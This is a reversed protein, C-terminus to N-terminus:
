CLSNEPPELTSRSDPPARWPDQPLGIGKAHAALDDGAYILRGEIPGIGEAARRYDMVSRVVVIRKELSTTEVHIGPYGLQRNLWHFIANVGRRGSHTTELLAM